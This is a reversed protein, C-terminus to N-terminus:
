AKILLHHKPASNRSATMLVAADHPGNKAQSATPSGEGDVSADHLVEEGGTSFYPSQFTPAQVETNQPELNETKLGKSAAAM